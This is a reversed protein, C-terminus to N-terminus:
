LSQQIKRACAVCHRTYPLAQLRPKPINCKCEECRGYSGQKIRDLADIIEELAQEQNELLSFTFEQEFNDGAVDALHMSASPPSGGFDGTPSTRLAESTLHSVDGRLRAQLARLQSEFTKLDAKTM